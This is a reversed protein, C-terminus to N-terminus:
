VCSLTADPATHVHIPLVHVDSIGLCVHKTCLMHPKDVHHITSRPGIVSTNGAHDNVNDHAAMRRPQDDPGFTKGQQLRQLLKDIDEIDDERFTSLEHFADRACDGEPRITKVKEGATGSTNAVLYNLGLVQIRQLITIVAEDDNYLENFAEDTSLNPVGLDKIQKHANKLQKIIDQQEEEDAEDYTTSTIAAGTIADWLLAGGRTKIHLELANSWREWDSSKGTFADADMSYTTPPNSVM